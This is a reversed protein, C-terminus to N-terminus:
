GGVEYDHDVDYFHLRDLKGCDRAGVVWKPTTISDDYYSDAGPVPNAETGELAAEAVKIAALWSGDSLHPWVILQPDGPAALSSYQWKKTVVEDLTHGWWSPRNVRNLISYAVALQAEHSAGRSERWVTLALYFHETLTIADM